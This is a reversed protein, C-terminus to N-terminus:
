WAQAGHGIKNVVSQDKEEMFLDVTAGSHLFKDNTQAQQEPCTCILALLVAVIPCCFAAPAPCTMGVHLPSSGLPPCQRPINHVVQNVTSFIAAEETAAAANNARVDMIAQARERLQRVEDQTAFDELVVYGAIVATTVGLAPARRLRYTSHADIQLRLVSSTGRLTRLM